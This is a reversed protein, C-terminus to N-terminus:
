ESSLLAYIYHKGSESEVEDKVLSQAAGTDTGKKAAAGVLAADGLMMRLEVPIGDDSAEPALKAAAPRRGSTAATAAATPRAAGRGRKAAPEPGVSLPRKGTSSSSISPNKADLVPKLGKDTLAVTVIFRNSVLTEFATQVEQMSVGGSSHDADAAANREFVVQEQIQDLRMKGHLMVAEAVYMALEGYKSRVISLMRAFNLRHLVNTINLSYLFGTQVVPKVQPNDSINEVSRPPSVLLLNHQHLIMLATRVTTGDVAVGKKEQSTTIANGAAAISARAAINSNVTRFLHPLTCKDGETLVTAVDQIPPLYIILVQQKIM